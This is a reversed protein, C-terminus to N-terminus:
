SIGQAIDTQRTKHADIQKNLDKQSELWTLLTYHSQQIGRSETMNKAFENREKLVRERQNQTWKDFRITFHNMKAKLDDFAFNVPAFPTVSVSARKAMIGHKNTSTSSSTLTQKSGWADFSQGLKSGSQAKAATLDIM